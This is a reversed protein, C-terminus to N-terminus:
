PEGDAEYRYHDDISARAFDVGLADCLHRLDTILGCILDEHLRDVDDLQDSYKLLARAARAARVTNNRRTCEDDDDVDFMLDTPINAVIGVAEECFPKTDTIGEWRPASLRTPSM